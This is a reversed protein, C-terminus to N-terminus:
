SNNGFSLPRELRRRTIERIGKNSNLSLHPSQDRRPRVPSDEDSM